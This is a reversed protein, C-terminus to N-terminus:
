FCVYGITQGVGVSDLSFGKSWDSCYRTEGTGDWLQLCLKFHGINGVNGDHFNFMFAFKAMQDIPLSSDLLHAVTHPPLECRGPSTALVGPTGAFITRVDDRSDPGLANDKPPAYKALSRAGSLPLSGNKSQSIVTGSVFLKSNEQRYRLCHETVNLIWYRCYVTIRRQGGGGRINEITITLRQGLGDVITTQPAVDDALFQFNDIKYMKGETFNSGSEDISRAADINPSMDFYTRFSITRGVKTSTEYSM